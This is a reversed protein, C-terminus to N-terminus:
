VHAIRMRVIWRRPLYRPSRQEDVSQGRGAHADRARQSDLLEAAREPRSGTCVICRTGYERVIRGAERLRGRGFVVRRPQACEFPTPMERGGQIKNVQAGNNMTMGRKQVHKLSLRKKPM